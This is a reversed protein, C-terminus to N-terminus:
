LGKLVVVSGKVVETEGKPFQDTIIEGEGEVEVYFGLSELQNISKYMDRGIISPMKIMEKEMNLSIEEPRVPKYQKYDIINEIIMKAYPMAAISGYYSVGGPEDVVILVVYDPNDGPFVGVFSAIYEGSLGSGGYKQSTGTKGGLSYGPIYPYYGSYQEIVDIMMEKMITSTKESITTGLKKTSKEFTKIGNCDSINKVFYPQNLNGGNVISCIANILQLPTMAVAQGFGMRAIDVNKSSDYDM